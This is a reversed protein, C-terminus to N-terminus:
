YCRRLTYQISRRVRGCTSVAWNNTLM